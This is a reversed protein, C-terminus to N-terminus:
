MLKWNFFELAISGSDVITVNQLFLPLEDAKPLCRSIVFRPCTAISSSFAQLWSSQCFSLWSIQSVRKRSERHRIVKLNCDCFIWICRGSQQVSTGVM